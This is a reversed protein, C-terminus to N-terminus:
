RITFTSLCQTINIGEYPVTGNLIHEELNQERTPQIEKQIIKQQPAGAM